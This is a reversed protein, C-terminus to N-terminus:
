GWRNETLWDILATSAIKKGGIRVMEREKIGVAIIYVIRQVQDVTYFVRTNSVRLEWFLSPQGSALRLPKRNMTQQLPEHTLQLPITDSVDRQANTKLWGRIDNGAELIIEITYRM